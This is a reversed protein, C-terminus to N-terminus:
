GTYIVGNKKQVWQDIGAFQQEAAQRLRYLKEESLTNAFSLLEEAAYANRKSLRIVRDRPSLESVALRM